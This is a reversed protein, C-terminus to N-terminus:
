LNERRPHAEHSSTSFWNERPGLLYRDTALAIM